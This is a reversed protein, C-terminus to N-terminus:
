CQVRGSARKCRRWVEDLRTAALQSVLMCDEGHKHLLLMGTEPPVAIEEKPVQRDNPHFVTEGGVCGDM